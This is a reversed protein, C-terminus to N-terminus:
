TSLHTEVARDDVAVEVPEVGELRKADQGADSEDLVEDTATAPGSNRNTFVMPVYVQAVGDGIM